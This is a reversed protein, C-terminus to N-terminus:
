SLVVFVFYCLVLLCHFFGIKERREDKLTLTLGALHKRWQHEKQDRRM